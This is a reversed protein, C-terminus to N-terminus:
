LWNPLTIPTCHKGSTQDLCAYGFTGAAHTTAIALSSLAFSVGLTFEVQVDVMTRAGNVYITFLQDTLPSYSTEFWFGALSGKPPTYEQVQGTLMNMPQSQDYVFDPQRSANAGTAAWFLGAAAVTNTAGGWLRVKRLRVSGAWNRVTTNAVTCIGGCISFLDTITPTCNQDTTFRFWQRLRPSLLVKTNAMSKSAKASLGRPIGFMGHVLVQVKEDPKKTGESVNLTSILESKKKEDDSAPKSGRVLLFSM